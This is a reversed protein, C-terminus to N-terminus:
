YFSSNVIASLAATLFHQSVQIPGDFGSYEPNNGASADAASIGPFTNLQDATIATSKRFYPLLGEWNWGKDSAFADWADYEFKSARNWSLFAM